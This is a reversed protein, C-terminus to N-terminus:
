NGERAATGLLREVIIVDRWEGDLQAHRRYTGVERFGFRACLARSATNEPFLRSLVKWFGARELADLLAPMLVRGVGQGQHSTAVYVSYEAIGAYCARSRYSSAAAFGVVEGAQEAVLIPFRPDAFWARIDEASRERTEFTAGRGSIGENYIRALADSDAEIAARVIMGRAQTM